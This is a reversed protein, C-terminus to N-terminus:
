HHKNTAVFKYLFVSKRAFKKDLTKNTLFTKCFFLSFVFINEM